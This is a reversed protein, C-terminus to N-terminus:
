DCLQLSWLHPIDSYFFPVLNGCHHKYNGKIAARRALFGFSHTESDYGVLIDPDHRQIIEIFSDLLCEETKVNVTDDFHCSTTRNLMNQRKSLHSNSPGVMIIGTVTNSQYSSKDCMKEDPLDNEIYYCIAEVPDFEPDPLLKQRTAVFLEMSLVTICSHNKSIGITERKVKQLNQASINSSLISARLSTPSGMTATQPNNSQHMGMNNETDYRQEQKNSNAQFENCNDAEKYKNIDILADDTTSPVNTNLRGKLVNDTLRQIDCQTSIPKVVHNKTFHTNQFSNDPKKIESKSDDSENGSSSCQSITSGSSDSDTSSNRRMRIKFKRAFGEKPTFQGINETVAKIKTKYDKQIAKSSPPRKACQLRVIKPHYDGDIIDHRASNTDIVKSKFQPLTRDWEVKIKQRGIDISGSMKADEKISYVVSKETDRTRYIGAKDLSAQIIKSSPGNNRIKWVKCIKDCSESRGPQIELSIKPVDTQLSNYEYFSKIRSYQKSPDSIEFIASKSEGLTVNCSKDLINVRNEDNTDGDRKDSSPPKVISKKMTKIKM